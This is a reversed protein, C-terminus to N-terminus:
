QNDIPTVNLAKQTAATSRYDTDYLNRRGAAPQIGNRRMKEGGITSMVTPLPM